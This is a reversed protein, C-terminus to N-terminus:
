KSSRKKRVFYFVGLGAVAVVFIIAATSFEGTAIAGNSNNGASDGSAAKTSSTADKNDADPVTTTSVSSTTTTNDDPAVTPLPTTDEWYKGTFNGFVVFNRKDKLNYADTHERLVFDFENVTETFEEDEGTEANKRTGSLLVNGDADTTLGEKEICMEKTPWIGFEGNGYYFYFAGDFGSKGSVPSVATREPDFDVVYVMNAITHVINDEDEIFYFNKAYDGFDPMEFNPDDCFDEYYTDYIYDWFEKPYYDSDGQAFYEIQLDKTQQSDNYEAYSKDMGGDIFNSFIMNPAAKSALTTRLNVADDGNKMKWGPWGHGNAEPYDDPNDKGGWWYLGCANDQKKTTENTWRGPMAFMVTQTEVGASPTYEPLRYPNPPAEASVSIMSGAFVSVALVCVLVISLIRKKM